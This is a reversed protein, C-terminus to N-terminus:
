LKTLASNLYILSDGQLRDTHVYRQEESRLLTPFDEPCYSAMEGNICHISM